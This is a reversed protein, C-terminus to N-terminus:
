IKNKMVKQLVDLDSVNVVVFNKYSKVYTTYHPFITTEILRVIRPKAWSCLFEHFETLDM